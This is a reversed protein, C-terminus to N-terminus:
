EILEGFYFLDDITCEVQSEKFAHYISIAASLSPTRLGSLYNSILSTSVGSANALEKQSMNARRMMVRLKFSCRDMWQLETM